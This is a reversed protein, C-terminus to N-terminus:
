QYTVQHCYVILQQVTLGVILWYSDRTEAAVFNPLMEFSWKSASMVASFPVKTNLIMVCHDFHHREM